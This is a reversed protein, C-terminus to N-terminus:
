GLHGGVAMVTKEVWSSPGTIGDGYQAKAADLPAAVYISNGEQVVSLGTIGQKEAEKVFSEAAKRAPVVALGALANVVTATLM